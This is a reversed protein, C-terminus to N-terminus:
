IHILSLAQSPTEAELNIQRRRGARTTYTVVFSTM